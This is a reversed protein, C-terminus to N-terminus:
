VLPTKGDHGMPTDHSYEREFGKGDYVPLTIRQKRNEERELRDYVDRWQPLVEELIAKLLKLNSRNEAQLTGKYQASDMAWDTEYLGSRFRPPPTSSMMREMDIARMIDRASVKAAFLVETEESPLKREETVKIDVAGENIRCGHRATVESQLQSVLQRKIEEIVYKGGSSGMSMLADHPM